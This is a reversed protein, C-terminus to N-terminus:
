TMGEIDPPLNKGLYRSRQRGDERWYAYWYPGHPCATCAEKGCRVWQQRYRVRPTQGPQSPTPGVQGGGRGTQATDGGGPSVGVANLADPSDLPDFQPGDTGVLLGQAYIIVRRLEYEDLDRLSRKLSEDV